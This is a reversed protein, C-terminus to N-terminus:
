YKKRPRNAGYVARLQGVDAKTAEVHRRISFSPFPQIAEETYRVDSEAEKLLRQRESAKPANKARMLHILGPCYHNIGPGCDRPFQFEPGKINPVGMQAWCFTPLQAIETAKPNLDKMQGHANFTLLALPVLIAAHLLRRLTPTM